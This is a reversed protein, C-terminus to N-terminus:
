PILLIISAYPTWHSEYLALPIFVGAGILLLLGQYKSLMAQDRWMGIALWPLVLLGMGLSMIAMSIQLPQTEAVNDWLQRIAIDMGALPGHFFGPFLNWQVLCALISGIGITGIRGWITSLWTTQRSLLFIGVWVVLILGLVMEHPLSIRDYEILFPDEGLRELCLFLASFLFMSSMIVLIPYMKAKGQWIWMLTYASLFFGISVLFEVSVWLGFAGM